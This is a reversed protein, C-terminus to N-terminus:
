VLRVLHSLKRIKHKKSRLHVDEPIFEYDMNKEADKKDDAGISLEKKVKQDPDDPDDDEEDARLFLNKVKKTKIPDKPVIRRRFLTISDTGESHNKLKKLVPYLMKTYTGAKSFVFKPDLIKKPRYKVRKLSSHKTLIPDFKPKKQKQKVKKQSEM